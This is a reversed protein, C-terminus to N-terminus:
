DQVCRVMNGIQRPCDDIGMWGNENELQIYMATANSNGESSSWIMGFRSLGSFGGGGQGGPLSTFGTENNAGTNPSAWHLTGEEKLKGGNSNGGIFTNLESWETESPLHWGSPCVGQVMSPNSSSPSEGAMAAPWNYLVGYTQFTNTTKAEAVSSGEYDYVYYCADTASSFLGSDVSPLYKLNEQMWVQDGIEIYRYVQNDRSDKLIGSSDTISYTNISGFIFSKLENLQQSLVEIQAKSAVEEGNELFVSGNVNINGDVDLKEIPENTGVGVNGGGYNLVLDTNARNQLLLDGESADWWLYGRYEDGEFLSLRVDQGVPSTLTM